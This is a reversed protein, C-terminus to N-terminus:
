GLRGMRIRKGKGSDSVSRLKLVLQMVLAEIEDRVERHVGLPEGVPDRVLWDESLIGQAYQPLPRGSMNVILTPGQRLAEELMRPRHSSIDLAREKMVAASNSDVAKGPSLGGSGAEMCDMGYAKAFGEAMPSRCANGVCVFLVRQKM